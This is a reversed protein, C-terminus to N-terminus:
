IINKLLSTINLDNLIEFVKFVKECIYPVWRYVEGSRREKCRERNEKPYQTDMVKFHYM